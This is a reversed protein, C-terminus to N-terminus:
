LGIVIATGPQKGCNGRVVDANAVTVASDRAATLQECVDNGRPSEHRADRGDSRSVNTMALAHDERAPNRVSGVIQLARAAGTHEREAWCAQDFRDCSEDVRHWLLKRM